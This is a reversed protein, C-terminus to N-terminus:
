SFIVLGIWIELTYIASSRLFFNMIQLWFMSSIASSLLGAVFLTQRQNSYMASITFSLFVVATSTLATLLLNPNFILYLSILPGLSLGQFFSFGLVLWKSTSSRPTFYFSIICAISAFFSLLGGSLPFLPSADVFVGVSTIALMLALNAYVKKLHAITHPKLDVSLNAWSVPEQQTQFFNM